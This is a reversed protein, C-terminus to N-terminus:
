WGKGKGWSRGKGGWSGGWGKGRYGGYYGVRRYGGRFGKGYYNAETVSVLAILIM